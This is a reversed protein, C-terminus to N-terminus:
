RQNRQYRAEAETDDDDNLLQDLPVIEGDNGVRVPRNKAKEPYGDRKPKESYIGMRAKEREVEQQIYEERRSQANTSAQYLEWIDKVIGMGWFFTVFIPWPFAGAGIRLSGLFGGWIVLNVILFIPLNGTIKRIKRQRWAVRQRIVEEIEDDDM